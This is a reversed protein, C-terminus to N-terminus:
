EDSNEKYLSEVWMRQAHTIYDELDEDVLIGCGECGGYMLEIFEREKRNLGEPNNLYLWNLKEHSNM